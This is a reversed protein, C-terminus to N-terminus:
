NQIKRTASLESKKYWFCGPINKQTTMWGPSFNYAKRLLCTTHKREEKCLFNCTYKGREVRQLFFFHNEKINQKKIEEPVNKLFLYKSFIM